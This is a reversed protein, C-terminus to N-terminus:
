KLYSKYNKTPIQYKIVFNSMNIVINLLNLFFNNYQIGIIIVKKKYTSEM